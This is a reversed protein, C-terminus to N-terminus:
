GADFGGTIGEWNNGKPYISENDFDQNDLKEYFLADLANQVTTAYGLAYKNGDENSLGILDSALDKAKHLCNHLENLVSKTENSEMLARKVSERIMGRLRSETIRYKRM